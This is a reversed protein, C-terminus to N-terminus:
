PKPLNLRVCKGIAAINEASCVPYVRTYDTEHTVMDM